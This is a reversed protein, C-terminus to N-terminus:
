WCLGSFSLFVFGMPKHYVVSLVSGSQWGLWVQGLMKGTSLGRHCCWCVRYAYASGVSILLITVSQDELHVAGIEIGQASPCMRHGGIEAGAFCNPGERLALLIESSQQFCWCGALLHSVQLCFAGNGQRQWGSFETRVLDVKDGVGVYALMMGM